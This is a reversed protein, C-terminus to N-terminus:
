RSVKARTGHVPKRAPTPKSAPMPKRTVAIKKAVPPLEDPLSARALDAFAEDLLACLRDVDTIVSRLTTIAVFCTDAYSCVGFMIRTGLSPGILPVFYELKSGNWFLPKPLGFPNSIMMNATVPLREGVRLLDPAATLGMVIMAYLKAGAANMTSLDHKAANMQAHVMQLRALPTSGPEGLPVVAGSLQNGAGPVKIAMPVLAVLPKQAPLGIEDLYRSYASDIVASMVDNFSTGTAHAIAKIRAVPFRSMGYAKEASGHRTPRTEPASLPLAIRRGGVLASKAQQAFVKGLGIGTALLEGLGNGAARMPRPKAPRAQREPSALRLWTSVGQWPAQFTKSTPSESMMEGLLRFVGIGDWQSHHALLMFAFKGGELGTIWHVRWLPKNWVLPAATLDSAAAMLQSDNGPSPLHTEIVHADLDVEVEEWFPMAGLAVQPRLNFPAGITRQKLTRLMRQPYDPRAGAPPSFVQLFAGHVPVFKSEILFWSMDLPMMQIAM